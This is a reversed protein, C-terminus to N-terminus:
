ESVEAVQEETVMEGPENGWNNLVYNLVDAVEQDNLGLPTMINNYTEGNVTIEGQLGYKIARISAERDNLYDSQALPPFVGAVGAGDAMHCTICMTTYIEEGREMSAQLEPDPGIALFTFAYSLTALISLKLM